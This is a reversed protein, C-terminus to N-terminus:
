VDPIDPSRSCCLLLAETTRDPGIVIKHAESNHSSTGCLFMSDSRIDGAPQLNKDTFLQFRAPEVSFHGIRCRGQEVAPRSLRNRGRNASAGPALRHVVM